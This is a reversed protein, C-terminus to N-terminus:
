ISISSSRTACEGLARGPPRAQGLMRRGGRRGMGLVWGWGWGSFVWRDLPPRAPLGTTGVECGGCDLVGGIAAGGWNGTQPPAGGGGFFFFRPLALITLLSPLALLALGFSGATATVQCAIVTWMCEGPARGPPGALGRRGGAAAGGRGGRVGARGHWPPSALSSHLFSPGESSSAAAGGRGGHVGARGHRSSHYKSDWGKTGGRATRHWPPPHGSGLKGLGQVGM